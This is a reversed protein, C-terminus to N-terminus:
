PMSHTELTMEALVRMLRLFHEYAMEKDEIFSYSSKLNLAHTM